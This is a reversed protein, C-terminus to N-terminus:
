TLYLLVISSKRIYSSLWNYFYTDTNYEKKIVHLTILKLFLNDINQLLDTKFVTKAREIAKTATIPDTVAASDGEEWNAVACTCCFLEVAFVVVPLGTSTYPPGGVPGNVATLCM